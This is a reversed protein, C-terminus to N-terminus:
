NFTSKKETWDEEKHIKLRSPPGEIKKQEITIPQILDVLRSLADERNKEQTRIIPTLTFNNL